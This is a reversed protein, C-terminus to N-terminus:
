TLPKDSLHTHVLDRVELASVPTPAGPAGMTSEDYQEEETSMNTTNKFLVRHAPTCAHLHHQFNCTLSPPSPVVRAVCCSALASCTTM